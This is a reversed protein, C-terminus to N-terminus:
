IDCIAVAQQLSQVPDRTPIFEHGVYGKYGTEVIALMIPPYNIEQTDDIEHRGPVGATHYHGIFEHYQRIRAIIDGQMIQVHFIDFLVKMRASGIQRCVDVAWEVTDCLYGPVGIMPADVRTNLVELCVNVEKKEALGIVQKLGAVTNKLGVESPIGTGVGSFTIVSPVGGEACEDIRNRLSEICTEHYQPECLGETFSHSGAIACELGYKKLTPWDKPEVLEVSQIGMSAAHRCLTDLPMPDFCWPCVSHKIRGRLNGLRKDSRGEATHRFDAGGLMVAAGMGSQLALRRSVKTRSSTQQSRKM